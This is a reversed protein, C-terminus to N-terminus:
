FKCGGLIESFDHVQLLICLIAGRYPDSCFTCPCLTVDSWAQFRIRVRFKVRVRDRYWLGVGIM